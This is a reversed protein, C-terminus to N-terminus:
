NAVFCNEGAARLSQCAQRAEAPSAGGARLRYGGSFPVVIKSMSAVSPFRSSLSTWAREAQAANKFAGLQVVSGPAGTPTAPKPQEEEAPERTENSPLRKPEEVPRPVAREPLADLDLQADADEGASTQYATESEGAVDLGGPDTPKIKYPGPEARILEPAGGAAAPDQRGLWFFTGAVIAAAALVVLLAALMRRASVGRPGDEDDVAELWPLASDDFSSRSDAM